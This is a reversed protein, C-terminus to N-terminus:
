KDTHIHAAVLCQLRTMYVEEEYKSLLEATIEMYDGTFIGKPGGLFGLLVGGRATRTHVFDYLGAIVNHGGPRRGGRSCWASASRRGTKTRSTEVPCWSCRASGM